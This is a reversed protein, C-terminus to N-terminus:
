YSWVTPRPQGPGNELTDLHIFRGGGKQQVGIGTFGMAMAHKLVKHARSRDVALDAARGTTHPGNAGTSSVRQNHKGCRYGSTVVLPFGCAERLADLMDVFDDAILNSGGCCDTGRCKFEGRTFHKWDTM